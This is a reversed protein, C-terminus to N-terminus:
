RRRGALLCSRSVPSSPSRSSCCCAWRRGAGRPRGALAGGVNGPHENLRWLARQSSRLSEVWGVGAIILGVLAILGVKQSGALVQDSTAAAAPQGGPLGPRARGPRTNGGLVRGLIFFLSSRWPSSRRLLRLLRHGRRPPGRRVDFYREQGALHPRLRPLPAARGGRGPRVRSGAPGAPEGTTDDSISARTARRRRTSRTRGGDAARATSSSRSGTSPSRPRSTRGPRRLGRRAREAARGPGVTVHPHYPFRARRAAIADAGLSRGRRLLECESIGAAVAM